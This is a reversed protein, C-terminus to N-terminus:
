VCCTSFAALRLVDLIQRRSPNCTDSHLTGTYHENVVNCNTSERMNFSSMRVGALFLWDLRHTRDTAVSAPEEAATIDDYTVGASVQKTAM